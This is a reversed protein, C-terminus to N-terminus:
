PKGLTGSWVQFNVLLGSIHLYYWTWGPNWIRQSDPSHNIFHEQHIGSHILWTSLRHGKLDKIEHVLWGLCPYTDWYYGIRSTLPYYRGQVGGWKLGFRVCQSPFYSFGPSQWSVGKRIIVACSWPSCHPSLCHQSQSRMLEETGEEREPHFCLTGLLATTATDVGLEIVTGMM